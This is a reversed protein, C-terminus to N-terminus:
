PDLLRLVVPIGLAVIMPITAWWLKRARFALWLLWALLVGLMTAVIIKSVSGGDWFRIAYVSIDWAIAASVLVSLGDWFYRSFREKPTEYQELNDLHGFRRM